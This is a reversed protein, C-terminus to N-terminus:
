KLFASVLNIHKIEPIQLLQNFLIKDRAEDETDTLLIILDRNESPEVECEQFAELKSLLTKKNGVQPIILYSKIPM